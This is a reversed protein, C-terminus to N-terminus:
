AIAAVREPTGVGNPIAVIRRAFSGVASTFTDDQMVADEDTDDDGYLNIPFRGAQLNAVRDLEEQYERRADEVTVIRRTGRRIEDSKVGAGSAVSAFRAQKPRPLEIPRVLLWRMQEDVLLLCNILALYTEQVEADVDPGRLGQSQGLKLMQIREWLAAAAGRIDSRQIRWAYLLRHPPVTSSTGSSGLPVTNLQQPKTCLEALHMDAEAALDASWPLHLLLDINRSSLLAQIFKTLFPRRRSPNAM